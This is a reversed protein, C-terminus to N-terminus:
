WSSSSCQIYEVCFSCVLIEENSVGCMLGRCVGDWLEATKQLVYIYM